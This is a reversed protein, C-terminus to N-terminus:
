PASRRTLEALTWVKGDWEWTDGLRQREVGGGFLVVRDRNSDYAM